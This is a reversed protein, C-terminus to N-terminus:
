LLVQQLDSVTPRNNM